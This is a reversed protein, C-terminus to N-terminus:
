TDIARVSKELSEVEDLFESAPFPERKGADEGKPKWEEPGYYADVYDGDYVGIRLVLKVYREAIMNM